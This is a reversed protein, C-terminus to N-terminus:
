IKTSVYVSWERMDAPASLVISKKYFQRDATCPSLLRGAERNGALGRGMCPRM